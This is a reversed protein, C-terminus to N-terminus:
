EGPKGSDDDPWLEDDLDGTIAYAISDVDYPFEAGELKLYAEYFDDDLLRPVGVRTEQGIARVVDAIAARIIYERIMRPRDPTTTTSMTSGEPAFRGGSASICGGARRGAGHYSFPLDSTSRTCRLEM